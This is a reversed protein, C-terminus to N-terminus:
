LSTVECLASVFKTSMVCVYGIVIVKTVKVGLGWVCESLMVGFLWSM